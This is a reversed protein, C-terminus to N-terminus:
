EEPNDNELSAILQKLEAIENGDLKGQHSFFSVLPTLGGDFFKDLFSTTKLEYFVNRDITPSYFYKREREVYSLAGKKLLRNILTKVTKPHVVEGTEGQIGEIIQNASLPAEQWLQQLVEIEADSVSLTIEQHTKM